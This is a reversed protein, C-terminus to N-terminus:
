LENIPTTNLNCRDTLKNLYLVNCGYNFIRIFKLPYFIIIILSFLM